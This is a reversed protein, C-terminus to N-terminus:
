TKPGHKELLKRATEMHQDYQAKMDEIKAHDWGALWWFHHDEDSDVDLDLTYPCATRPLWSTFAAIGEQYTPPRHHSM